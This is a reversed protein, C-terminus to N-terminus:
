EPRFAGECAAEEEDAAFVRFREVLGMFVSGAAGQDMGWSLSCVAGDDLTASRLPKHVARLSMFYRNVRARHAAVSVNHGIRLMVSILEYYVCGRPLRKAGYTARDDQGCLFLHM